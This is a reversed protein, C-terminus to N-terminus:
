CLTCGTGLGRGRGSPQAPSPQGTERERRSKRGGPAFRGGPGERGTGDLDMRLCASLPCSHALPEWIHVGVSLGKGGLGGVCVCANKCVLGELLLEALLLPRWGMLYWGLISRM